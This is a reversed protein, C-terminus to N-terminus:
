EKIEKVEQNREMFQGYLLNAFFDSHLSLLERSIDVTTSGIKLCDSFIETPHSYDSDESSFIPILILSFEELKKRKTFEHNSLIEDASQITEGSDFILPLWIDLHLSVLSSPFRIPFLLSSLIENDSDRTLTVEVGQI